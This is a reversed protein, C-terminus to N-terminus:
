APQGALGLSGGTESEEASPNFVCGMLYLKIFVQTKPSSSLRRVVKRDERESQCTVVEWYATSHVETGDNNVQPTDKPPWLLRSMWAASDPGEGGVCVYLLM